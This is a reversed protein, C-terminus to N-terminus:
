NLGTASFCRLRKNRVAEGVNTLIHQVRPSRPLWQLYVYEHAWNKVLLEFVHDHVLHVRARIAWHLYIAMATMSTVLLDIFCNCAHDTSM